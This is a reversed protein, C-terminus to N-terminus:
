FQKKIHHELKHNKIDDKGFHYLGKKCDQNRIYGEFYFSQLNRFHDDIM